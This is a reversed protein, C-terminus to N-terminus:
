EKALQIIKDMRTKISGDLNGGDSLIIVGGKTIAEDSTIKLNNENGLNENLFQFDQPNARIEIKTSNQIEKILSKSLSLAIASSNESVEKKIVEKAIEIATDSLDLETKKIFEELNKLKDGLLMCSRAYQEQMTKIANDMEEKAKDYGQKLYEEKTAQIQSDLEKQFEAKQSENQMQLKVNESSLEDTKKLLKEIFSDDPINKAPEQQTQPTVKNASVTDEQMFEEIGDDEEQPPSVNTGLVKFRYSEVNHKNIKDNRIINADM